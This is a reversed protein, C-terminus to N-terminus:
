LPFLQKNSFGGSSTFLFSLLIDVFSLWTDKFHNLLLIFFYQLKWKSINLLFLKEWSLFHSALLLPTWANKSLAVVLVWYVNLYEEALITLAICSGKFVPTEEKFSKKFLKLRLHWQVSNLSVCRHDYEGRNKLTALILGRLAHRMGHLNSTQESGSLVTNSSSLSTRAFVCVCVTPHVSATRLSNM